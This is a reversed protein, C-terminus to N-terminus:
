DKYEGIAQRTDPDDEVILIVSRGPDSPLVVMPAGAALRRLARAVLMIAPATGRNRPQVVLRAPRLEDTLEAWYPKHARTVVVLQRAPPSTSARGGGRTTSCPRATSCGASSSPVADGALHQTLPRLRTGEGGALIVAWPPVTSAM